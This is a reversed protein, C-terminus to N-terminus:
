RRKSFCQKQLGYEIDLPKRMLIM